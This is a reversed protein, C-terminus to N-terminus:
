KRGVLRWEGRIAVGEGRSGGAVMGGWAATARVRSGGVVTRGGVMVREGGFWWGGNVRLSDGPM